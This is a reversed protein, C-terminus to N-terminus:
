VIRRARFNSMDEESSRIQPVKFTFIRPQASTRPRTANAAGDGASAVGNPKLQTELLVVSQATSCVCSWRSTVRLAPDGVITSKKNVLVPGAADDIVSTYKSSATGASRPRGPVMVSLLPTLNEAPQVGPFKGPPVKIPNEV